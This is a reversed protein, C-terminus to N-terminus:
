LRIELFHKLTQTIVALVAAVASALEQAVLVEAV